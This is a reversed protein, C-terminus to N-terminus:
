DAPMIERFRRAVFARDEKTWEIGAGRVFVGPRIAAVGVIGSGSVLELRTLAGDHLIGGRRDEQGLPEFGIGVRGRIEMGDPVALAPADAGTAPEVFMM